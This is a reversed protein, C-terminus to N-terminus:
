FLSEGRMFAEATIINGTHALEGDIYTRKTPESGTFDLLVAEDHPCLLAIADLIETLDDSQVFEMPRKYDKTILLYNM